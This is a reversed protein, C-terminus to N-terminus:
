EYLEISPHAGLIIKGRAFQGNMLIFSEAPFHIPSTSQHSYLALTDATQFFWDGDTRWKPLQADLVWELSNHQIKGLWEPMQNVPGRMFKKPKSILKIPTRRLARRNFDLRLEADTLRIQRAFANRLLKACYEAWEPKLWAAGSSLPLILVFILFLRALFPVLAFSELPTGGSTAPRPM